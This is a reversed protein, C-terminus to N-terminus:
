VHQWAIEPGKKKLENGKGSSSIKRTANERKKEPRFVCM